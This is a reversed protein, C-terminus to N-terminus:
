KKPANANKKAVAVAEKIDSIASKAVQQVNPDKHSQLTELSPLAKEAEAGMRDLSWCVQAIMLPEPDQLADILEPVKSKAALGIYGLARAAQTRIDLDGNKMQKAITTLNTENVAKEDIRMLAVRVWIVAAPDKDVKLRRELLNKLQSVDGSAPPGLNILGQLAEMRVEKSYDDVADVLARLATLDAAYSEDRGVQGLAFCMAKRIEWSQRDNVHNRLKPVASRAHIGLNGLAMAAQYRIIGQPNDLESILAGVVERAYEPASPAIYSLAIIANAQPSLDNLQRVEKVLAPIARRSNPGFLQVMKIAHERVSPDQHGIERIWQELTKGGVETPSAAANPTVPPRQMIGPPTGAPAPAPVAAPPNANPKTNAPPGPRGQAAAPGVLALATFSSLVAALPTRM